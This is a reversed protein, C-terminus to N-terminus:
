NFRQLMKLIFELTKFSWFVNGLAAEFLWGYDGIDV